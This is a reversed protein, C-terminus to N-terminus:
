RSQFFVGKIRSLQRPQHLQGYSARIQSFGESVFQENPNKVILMDSLFASLLDALCFIIGSLLNVLFNGGTPNSRGVAVM